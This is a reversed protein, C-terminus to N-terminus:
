GQKGLEIAHYQGHGKRRALETAEVAARLLPEPSDGIDEPRGTAAGITVTMPVRRDNVIVPTREVSAHVREALQPPTETLANDMAITFEEEGFRALLDYDRVIGRLLDSLGSLVMDGAMHGFDDNIKRFDDIDIMLLCVTQNFRRSRRWLRSLAAFFYDRNALGTLTDTIQQLEVKERLQEVQATLALVREALQERSLNELANSTIPDM